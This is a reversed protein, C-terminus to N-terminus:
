FSSGPQRLFAAEEATTPRALAANRHPFRGFRRIVARHREAYDIYLPGNEDDALAAFLACSRDQDAMDESHEFPLYFFIRECAPRGRDFGRALARGAVARAGADGAFARPDGRFLNRPFQDLLLLLALAGDATEEWAAFAGAVAAASAAAFRAHIAGDFDPDRAFWQSRHRGRTAGGVPGFWFDLVAAPDM